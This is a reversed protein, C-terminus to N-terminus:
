LHDYAGSAIKSVVVYSIGTRKSVANKSEGAEIAQKVADRVDATIRTRRRKGTPEDSGNTSLKVSYKEILLEVLRAPSNVGSQELIQDLRGKLAEDERKRELLEDRKRQLEAEERELQKLELEIETSKM